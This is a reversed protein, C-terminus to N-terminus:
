YAEASDSAEDFDLDEEKSESKAERGRKASKLKAQMLTHSVVGIRLDFQQVEGRIAVLAQKINVLPSTDTASNERGAMDAQMEDLQEQIAGMSTTLLAVSSRTSAHKENVGRLQGTLGEYEARLQEFQSNISAEKGRMKEVAEKIQESIIKMHGQASPLVAQITKEHAKTQEIHAWWEKGLGASAAKLRPGVRELETKWILPDITNAIIAHADGGGFSTEHGSDFAGDEEAVEADDAIDGADADEDAEAEEVEPPAEHEPAAWAFRRAALAKDCLFDLVNCTAEGHGTKLKAVPFDLGFGLNRLALMMKNVSTNPDDFKDIQFTSRDGTVERALWEVLSLFNQFQVSPNKAPLAFATRAFPAVHKPGCFETEYNLLKMKELVNEMTM